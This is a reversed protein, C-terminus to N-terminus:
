RWFGGKMNERLVDEVTGIDLRRAAREAIIQFHSYLSAIVQGSEARPELPAHFIADIMKSSYVHVSANVLNSKPVNPKEEFGIVRRQEDVEVIGYQSLKEKEGEYVIIRSTEDHQYQWVIQNLDFLNTGSFLLTDSALVMTDDKGIQRLASRLDGVAGTRHDNDRVGNNFIHASPIGNSTRWALYQSYYLANTHVFIDQPTLGAQLLQELQHQVVPKGRIIVLGKPKGAVWEELQKKYEGQYNQYSEELRTGFGAALILAKM